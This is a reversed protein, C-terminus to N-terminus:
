KAPKLLERGSLGAWGREKLVREMLSVDEGAQMAVIRFAEVCPEDEAAAQAQRQMRDQAQISVVRRQQLYAVLLELNTGLIEVKFGRSSFVLTLPVDHGPLYVIDPTWTWDLSCENGGVGKLTLTGASSRQGRVFAFCGSAALDADEEDKILRVVSTPAAPKESDRLLKEMATM